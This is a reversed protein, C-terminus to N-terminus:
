KASFFYKGKLLMCFTHRAKNAGLTSIPINIQLRSHFNLLLKSPPLINGIAEILYIFIEIKM